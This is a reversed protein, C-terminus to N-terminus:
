TDDSRTPNLTDPLHLIDESAGNDFTASAIAHGSGRLEEVFRAAMQNADRADHNHHQGIGRITITWEATMAKSPPPTEDRPDVAHGLRETQQQLLPLLIDRAEDIQRHAEALAPHEGSIKKKPDGGGSM